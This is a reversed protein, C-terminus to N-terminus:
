SFHKMLQAFEDAPGNPVTYGEENRIQEFNDRVDEAVDAALVARAISAAQFRAADQPGLRGGLGYPNFRLTLEDPRQLESLISPNDQDMAGLRPGTPSVAM